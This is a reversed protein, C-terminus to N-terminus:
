DQQGFDKAIRRIGRHLAVRVAGESIHLRAAVAAIPLGEIAVARIVDRQGTPLTVIQREIDRAPLSPASDEAALTDAFDEIPLDTGKGHRRRM